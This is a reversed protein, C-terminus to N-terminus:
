WDLKPSVVDENAELKLGFKSYEVNPIVHPIGALKTPM